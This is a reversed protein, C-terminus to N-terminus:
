LGKAGCRAVSGSLSTQLDSWDNAPFVAQFGQINNNLINLAQSRLSCAQAPNNAELAETANNLLGQLAQQQQVLEPSAAPQALAEAWLVGCSLACLFGTRVIMVVDM